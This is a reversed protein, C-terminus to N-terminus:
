PASVAVSIQSEVRDPVVPPEPPAPAALEPEPAPRAKTPTLRPAPTPPPAPAALEVLEVQIPSAAVDFRVLAIAGFAAAHCVISGVLGVALGRDLWRSSRM